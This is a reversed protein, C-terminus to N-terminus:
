RIGIDCMCYYSEVNKLTAWDSYFTMWDKMEIDKPDVINLVPWRKFALDRWLIYKYQPDLSVDRWLTCVQPVTYKIHEARLYQFIRVLCDIPFSTSTCSIDDFKYQKANPEDDDIIISERTRKSM